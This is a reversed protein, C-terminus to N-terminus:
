EQTAVTWIRKLPLEARLDEDLRDYNAFLHELLEKQSWLRVRFFRSALEKYVTPKFGGWSVFLAADAKTHDGAKQDYLFDCAVVCGVVNEAISRNAEHVIQLQSRLQATTGLTDVARLIREWFRRRVPLLPYDTVYFARDEQRTAIRSQALQRSIEGDCKDMLEALSQKRDARKQLLVTRVVSDVDADTLQVAIRFRALLKQLNPVETLASQGTAVLLLKGGLNKCLAEATEQVDYSLQASGAIFQQVEDLVLLTCPVRGTEDALASRIAMLMQDNSIDETRVPFQATLLKRIDGPNQPLSPDSALLANALHPSVFLNPLEQALSRGNQRLHSKLKELHGNQKLWLLFSAQHFAEPLGLSRFVISLVSLRVHRMGGEGMTGAAAHIGGLRKGETDLEKMLDQIEAPLDSVLARATVGDSFKHNTWLLRLMKVLHSKGSGYFGSVWAAAQEPKDLQALFSRLIRTLGNAYQGDCVFTQLEFRAVREESADRANTVRSVGQNLLELKLPDKVFLERNKM